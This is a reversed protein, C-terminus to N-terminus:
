SHGGIALWALTTVLVVIGCALGIAVPTHYIAM